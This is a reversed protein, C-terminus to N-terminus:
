QDESYFEWQESAPSYLYNMQLRIPRGGSEETCQMRFLLKNGIKKLYEVKPSSLVSHAAAPYHKIFLSNFNDLLYTTKEIILLQKEAANIQSSIDQLVTQFEPLAVFPSATISEKINQLKALAPGYKESKLYKAADQKDRIISAHLMIRSLKDRSDKTNIQSLLKSNEELLVIAQEYQIIADDWNSAAFAEQGKEVTMYIKTRAINEHLNSITASDPLELKVVLELARQYSDLASLWDNNNFFIHGQDRLTNFKTQNSLLELQVIDELPVNPDTKALQLAKSFHESAGDWDSVSLCKEGALMAANLRARPLQKHVEAILAKEIAPTKTATELAKEYYLAAEQWIKQQFLTDGNKKAENFTMILKKTAESVFQGDLLTKGALGQRLKESALLTRIEQTLLKKENQKVLRVGSLLDLAEECKREAGSFNNADLLTRCETASQQADKLGSSLSFYSIAITALLAISGGGIAYLAWRSGGPKREEYFTREGKPSALSPPVGEVFPADSDTSPEKKEAERDQKGGTVWDGLLDLSQQIREKAEQLLPYDSVLEGVAAYKEWAKKHEGRHEFDDAERYLAMAKDMAKQVQVELDERGNFHSEISQLEQSLAHFRKQRAIVRLRDIDISVTLHPPTDEYPSEDDKELSFHQSFDDDSLIDIEDIEIAEDDREQTSSSTAFVPQEFPLRDGHEQYWESAEENFSNTLSYIEGSIMHGIHLILKAISQDAQWADGICIASSDFDPHFIPTEPRCNPPFHPFGFPLSISIVHKACSQVEGGEEKCVGKIKYTVRYQEPPNGEEPTVTIQPINAFYDTVEQFVIELQKSTNSM